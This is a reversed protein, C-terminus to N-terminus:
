APVVFTMWGSVSLDGDQDTVTLEIDVTRSDEHKAAVVGSVTMEYGPFAPKKWRMRTRMVHEAGLWRTAYSNMVGAAFMGVALPAPFGAATAFPEDHHVPNMDGSAGQYRVFDTRTLPGFTFPEPGQGEVLSDWTSM